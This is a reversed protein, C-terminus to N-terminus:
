IWEYSIEEEFTSELLDSDVLNFHNFLAFILVTWLPYNMLLGHLIHHRTWEWKTKPRAVMGINMWDNNNTEQYWMRGDFEKVTQAPPNNRTAVDVAHRYLRTTHKILDM